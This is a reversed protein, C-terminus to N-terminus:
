IDTSYLKLFCDLETSSTQLAFRSVAITVDMGGITRKMGVPLNTAGADNYDLDEAYANSDAIRALM